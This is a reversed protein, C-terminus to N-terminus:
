NVQVGTPASPMTGLPNVRWEEVIMNGYGYTNSSFTGYLINTSPDFFFSGTGPMGGCNNVANSASRWHPFSWFTYPTVSYVPIKGEHAQYLQALDYATIQVRDYNATDPAITGDNSGSANKNCGAGRIQSPGYEHDSIYLLSRSGPVIFGYGMPGDYESFYNDGMPHITVATSCGGTPCKSLAPFSSCGTVGYNCTYLNDPVNANGNTLHVVRNEGDSFTVQYAGLPAATDCGSFPSALEVNTAGDAPASTLTGACGGGGSLPFPGSLSRYQLMYPNPQRPTVGGFYYDLSESVPIQGGAANYASCDFTSFGFGNIANSEIALYPGNVEYCPGGLYPRWIAPVIGLAGAFYRQTCRAPVGSLCPTSAEDVVGWNTLNTNAGIIFGNAGNNTDFFPAVTLYFKGNYVLSGLLACQTNSAAQGCNLGSASGGPVVPNTIVVAAGNSGDYAPAGNLQPIQIAGIAASRSNGGNSSYSGTMYMTSGSVSMAGGGYAFQGSGVGQPVKFSGLFTLSFNSSQVLPLSLPDVSAGAAYAVWTLGCLLVMGLALAARLAFVKKVSCEENSDSSSEAVIFKARLM